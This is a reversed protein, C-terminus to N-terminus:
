RADTIEETLTAYGVRGHEVEGRATVVANELLQHRTDDGNACEILHHQRRRQSQELTRSCGRRHRLQGDPLDVGQNMGRCKVLGFCMLNALDRAPGDLLM